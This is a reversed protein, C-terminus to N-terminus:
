KDGRGIVDVGAPPTFSFLNPAFKANRQSHSFTLQTVQNLKDALFMSALVGLMVGRRGTAIRAGLRALAARLDPDQVEAVKGDMRAVVDPAPKVIPKPGAPRAIAGQMLRIDDIQRHGFYANVREVIQGSM